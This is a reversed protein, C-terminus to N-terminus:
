DFPESHILCRAIAQSAARNLFAVRTLDERDFCLWLVRRIRRHGVAMMDPVDIDVLRSPGRAEGAVLLIRDGLGHVSVDDASLSMALAGLAEVGKAEAHEIALEGWRMSERLRLAFRDALEAEEIPTPIVPVLWIDRRELALVPDTTLVVDFDRTEIIADLNEKSRLITVTGERVPVLSRVVHALNAMLAPSQRGVIAVHPAGRQGDGLVRELCVALDMVDSRAPRPGTVGGLACEVVHCSASFRRVIAKDYYNARHAGLIARHRAAIYSRALDGDAGDFSATRAGVLDAVRGIFTEAALCDEEHLRVGDVIGLCVLSDSLFHRESESYSCGTTREVEDLIENAALGGAERLPVAGDLFFGAADRAASVWLLRAMATLDEGAARCAPKRSARKLVEMIRSLSCEVPMMACSSREFFPFSSPHLMQCCMHRCALEDAELRVGHSPSVALNAGENRELWRKVHRLEEFITAKSVHHRRALKEMSIWDTQFLLDAVIGARRENLSYYAADFLEGCRLEAVIARPVCGLRYGRGRRVELVTSGGVKGALSSVVGRLKKQSWGLARSLRPGSEWDNLQILRQLLSKEDTSLGPVHLGEIM